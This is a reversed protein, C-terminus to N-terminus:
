EPEGDQPAPVVALPPPATKTVPIHWPMGRFMGVAYNIECAKLVGLMNLRDLARRAANRLNGRVPFIEDFPVLRGDGKPSVNLSQAWHSDGGHKHLHHRVTDLARLESPTLTHGAITTSM